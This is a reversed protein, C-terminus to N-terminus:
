LGSGLRITWVTVGFLVEQVGAWLKQLESSALDNLPDLITLSAPPTTPSMLCLSAGESM